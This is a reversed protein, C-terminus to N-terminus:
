KVYSIEARIRKDRPQLKEFAKPSIKIITEGSEPLKGIVKVWVSLGNAENRVQILTGVPATKHLALYKDTKEGADIVEAVGNEINKKGGPANPM